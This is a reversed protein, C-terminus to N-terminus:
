ARLVVLVGAHDSPWVGDVPGTGFREADLIHGRADGTPPGAFVYDIRADPELTAAVHPNSRAWTWGPELPRAYAWADVLVVPLPAATKGVLNRVEDADPPANFDGTLVPPFAAGGASRAHVFDAVAAVQAQRLASQGPASNLHATFFPLRGAPCEIAAYLCLRGEDPADGAPLRRAERAAIPWRSLVAYGIGVGEGAAGLRRQWKEPAPSPAFACHWGWEAALASALDGEADSWVEQLGCVDPRVRRLEAAIAERRDRWEGFRWWLNWTAVRVTAGGAQAM